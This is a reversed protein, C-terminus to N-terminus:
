VFLALAKGIRLASGYSNKRTDCSSADSLLFSRLILVKTVSSLHSTLL